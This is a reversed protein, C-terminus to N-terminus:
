QEKLCSWLTLQNLILVKLKLGSKISGGGGAGPLASGNIIDTINKYTLRRM